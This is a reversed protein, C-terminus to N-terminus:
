VLHTPSYFPQDSCVTTLQLELLRTALQTHLELLVTATSLLIAFLTITCDTITIFIIADTLHSCHCLLLSFLLSNKLSVLCMDTKVHTAILSNM